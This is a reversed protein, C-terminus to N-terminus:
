PASRSAGTGCPASVIARPLPAPRSARVIRRREVLTLVPDLIALAIGGFFLGLLGVPFLVEGIAAEYQSFLHVLIVPMIALIAGGAGLIGAVIGAGFGGRWLLVVCALVVALVIIPLPGGDSAYSHFTAEGPQAALDFWSGGCGGQSAVYELRHAPLLYGIMAVLAAAAVVFFTAKRLLARGGTLAVRRLRLTETVGDAHTAPALHARRKM